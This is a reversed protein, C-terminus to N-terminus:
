RSADADSTRGIWEAAMADVLLMRRNASWDTRPLKLMLPSTEDCECRSPDVREICVADIAREDGSTWEDRRDDEEEVNEGGHQQQVGRDVFKCEDVVDMVADFRLANLLAARGM